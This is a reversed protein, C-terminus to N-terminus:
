SIPTAGCAAGMKKQRSPTALRRNLKSKASRRREAAFRVGARACIDPADRLGMTVRYFFRLATVARNVSAVTLGSQVLHLQYARVDEYGLLDPSKAFHKAFKAVASVYYAQTGPALRRIAMDDLMRQRLPTIPQTM